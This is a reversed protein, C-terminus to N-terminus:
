LALTQLIKAKTASSANRARSILSRLQPTIDERSARLAEEGDGSNLAEIVSTLENLLATRLEEDKVRILPKAYTNNFQTVAQSLMMRERDEDPSRQEERLGQLAQQATEINEMTPTKVAASYLAEVEAAASGAEDGQTLSAIDVGVIKLDDAITVGKTVTSKRALLKTLQDSAGRVRKLERPVEKSLMQLTEARTRIGQMADQMMADRYEQMQEQTVEKGAFTAKYGEVQKALADAEQQLAPSVKKVLTSARNLDKVLQKVDRQAWKLEQKPVPMTGMESPMPQQQDPYPQPYQQDSM